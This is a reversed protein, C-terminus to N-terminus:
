EVKQNKWEPNSFEYFILKFVAVERHSGGRAADEKRGWVAVTQGGFYKKVEKHIPVIGDEFHQRSFLIDREFTDGGGVDDVARHQNRNLALIKVKSQNGVGLVVEADAIWRRTAGLPSEIFTSQFVQYHLPINSLPGNVDSIRFIM